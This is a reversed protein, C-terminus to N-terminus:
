KYTVLVILGWCQERFSVLSSVLPSRCGEVVVGQIRNVLFAEIWRLIPGKDGYFSLKGLLRKHPVADFAKSFDLIAIDIQIQKDRFSLLDQITVALVM